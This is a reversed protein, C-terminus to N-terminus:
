PQLGLFRYNVEGYRDYVSPFFALDIGATAAITDTTTTDMPTAM